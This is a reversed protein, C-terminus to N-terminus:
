KGVPKVAATRAALRIPDPVVMNRNIKHILASWFERKSLLLSVPDSVQAEVRPKGALNPDPAFWIGCRGSVSLPPLVPVLCLLLPPLHCGLAKSNSFVQVEQVNGQDEEFLSCEMRSFLSYFSPTHTSLIKSGGGRSESHIETLSPKPPNSM